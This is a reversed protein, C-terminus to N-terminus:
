LEDVFQLWAKARNQNQWRQIAAKIVEIIVQVGELEEFIPFIAM